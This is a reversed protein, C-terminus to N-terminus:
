AIHAYCLVQGHCYSFTSNLEIQFCVLLGAHAKSLEIPQLEVALPALFRAFIKESSNQGRFYTALFSTSAAECRHKDYTKKIFFVVKIIKKSKDKQPITQTEIPSHEIRSLAQRISPRSKASQLCTQESGNSGGAPPPAAGCATIAHRRLLHQRCGPADLHQHRIPVMAPPSWPACCLPGSRMWTACNCWRYGWGPLAGTHALRAIPRYHPPSPRAPDTAGSCFVCFGDSSGSMHMHRTVATTRLALRFPSKLEIAAKQPPSLRPRQSHQPM